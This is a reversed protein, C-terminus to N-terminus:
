IFNERSIGVKSADTGCVALIRKREDYAIMCTQGLKDRHLQKKCKGRAIAMNLSTIDELFVFLQGHRNDLILLCKDDDLIHILRLM